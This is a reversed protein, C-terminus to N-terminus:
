IVSRKSIEVLRTCRRLFELVHIFYNAFLTKCVYIRKNPLISSVSTRLVFIVFSINKGDGM